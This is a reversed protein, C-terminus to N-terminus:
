ALEKDRMGKQKESRIESASAPAAEYPCGGRVGAVERGGGGKRKLGKKLALFGYRKKIDLLRERTAEQVM